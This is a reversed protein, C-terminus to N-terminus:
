FLFVTALGYCTSFSLSVIYFLIFICKKVVGVGLSYLLEGHRKVVSYVHRCMGM